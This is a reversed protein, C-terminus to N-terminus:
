RARRALDRTVLWLVRTAAPAVVPVSILAHIRHRWGPSNPNQCLAVSVDVSVLTSISFLFFISFHRDWRYGTPVIERKGQCSPCRWEGCREEGRARWAESIDRVSKAAWSRICKIHFTTWCYSNLQDKETPRDGDPDDVSTVLPISPSCSWTPQAPYISSFCIPCDPYPPTSLAHTLTSTLHGKQGAAAANNYRESQKSSSVAAPPTDASYETTLSGNFQARRRNRQPQNRAPRPQLVTTTTTSASRSANSELTSESAELVRDPLRPGRSNQAGSAPTSSPKVTSTSDFAFSSRQQSRGAPEPERRFRRTRPASNVSQDEAFARAIRRNFNPRTQSTTSTAPPNPLTNAGPTDM